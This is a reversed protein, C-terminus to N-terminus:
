PLTAGPVVGIPGILYPYILSLYKVGSGNQAYISFLPNDLVWKPVAFSESVNRVAQSTRIGVGNGAGQTNQNNRDLVLYFATLYKFVLSQTAEDQFLNRNFNVDAEQIARSIDEDSFQGEGDGYDFDKTFYEKFDFANILCGM